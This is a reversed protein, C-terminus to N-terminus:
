CRAELFHKLALYLSAQTSTLPKPMTEVLRELLELLAHSEEPSM